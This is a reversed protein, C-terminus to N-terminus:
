KVAEWKRIESLDAPPIFLAIFIWDEDGLNCPQHMTNPPIYLVSMPKVIYMNDGIKVSGTGKITFYIEASEEHSHLPGEQGPWYRFMVLSLLASKHNPEGIPDIFIKVSRGSLPPPSKREVVEDANM